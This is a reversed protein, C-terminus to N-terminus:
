VHVVVMHYNRSIGHRSSTFAVRTHALETVHRLSAALVCNLMVATKESRDLRPLVTDHVAAARRLVEVRDKRTMGGPSVSDDGATKVFWQRGDVGLVGYSIHGSDQTRADFTAFTQGMRDIVAAVPQRAEIRNPV